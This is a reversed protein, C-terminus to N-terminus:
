MLAIFLIPRLIVVTVRCLSFDAVGIVINVVYAGCLPYLAASLFCCQPLTSSAICRIGLLWISIHFVSAFPCSPLCFWSPYCACTIPGYACASSISIPFPRRNYLVHLAYLVIGVFVHFIGCSFLCSFCLWFPVGFLFMHFMAFIRMCFAIVHVLM